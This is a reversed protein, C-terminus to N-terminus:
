QAFLLATPLIITILPHAIEKFLGPAIYPKSRIRRGTGRGRRRYTRRNGPGNKHTGM